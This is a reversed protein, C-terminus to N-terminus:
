PGGQTITEFYTRIIERAETPIAREEMLARLAAYDVLLRPTEGNQTLVPELPVGKTMFERFAGSEGIM